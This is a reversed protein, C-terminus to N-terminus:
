NHSGIRSIIVLEVSSWEFKLVVFKVSSGNLKYHDIRSVVLDVVSLLTDKGVLKTCQM